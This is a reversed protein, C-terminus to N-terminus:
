NSLHSQCAQTRLPSKPHECNGDARRGLEKNCAIEQLTSHLYVKIALSWNEGELSVSGSLEELYLLQPGAVAVSQLM